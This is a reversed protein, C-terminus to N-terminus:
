KIKIVKFHELFKNQFKIFLIILIEFRITFHIAFLDNATLSYIPWAM